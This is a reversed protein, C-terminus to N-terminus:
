RQLIRDIRCINPCTRTRLSFEVGHLDTVLDTHILMSFTRVATLQVLHKEVALMRRGFRNVLLSSVAVLAICIAFLPRSLRFLLVSYAATDCIVRIVDAILNLSNGTFMSVQDVIVEDPNDISPARNCAIDYYRRREFYMGLLQATMHRRWRVQLRGFAYSQMVSLPVVIACVVFLRIFARILADRSRETFATMMAGSAVTWQVSAGTGLAILALVLALHWRAGREEIFFPKSLRWGSSCLRSIRSFSLGEDNVGVERLTRPQAATAVSTVRQTVSQTERRQRLVGRMRPALFTSSGGIPLMTAIFAIM